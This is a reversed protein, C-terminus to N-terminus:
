AGLQLRFEPDGYCQYAAWTMSGNVKAAERRATMVADGFGATALLQGYFTKAFTVAAADEVSWGAAVVARVGIQMLERSISAALLHANDHRGASEASEEIRGSHCCNLFVLEPVASLQAITQATLFHDPGIMVGSHDPKKPNFGGHAAIHM